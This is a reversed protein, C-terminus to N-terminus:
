ELSNSSANSYYPATNLTATGTEIYKNTKEFLPTVSLSGGAIILVLFTLVPAFSRLPRPSNMYKNDIQNFILCIM